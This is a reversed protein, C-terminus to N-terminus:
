YLDADVRVYQPQGHRFFRVAYTGDGLDVVMKRVFEPNMKAAASLRAMFFCDGTNGQYVDDETPGDSAFLPKNSSNQLVLEPDGDKQKIAEPDLLAQGNLEKSVPIVNEGGDYSYGVFNGVNHIFRHNIEHQTIDVMLDSSDKWVNDSESGGWILDTGGGITVIVDSGAEGYLLDNGAGGYMFDNNAGGYMKDKGAAGFMTDKGDGGYMLDNDNGGVLWDNGGNGVVTDNGAEGYFVEDAAGGVLHDDGSGGYARAPKSTGNTFEDNGDHGDFVIKSVSAASVTKQYTVAGSNMTAKIDGFAESVIAVENHEDGDLTLVGTASDFSISASMLDRKELAEIALSRKRRNAASRLSKSPSAFVSTTSSVM